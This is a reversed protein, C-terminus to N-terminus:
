HTMATQVVTYALFGKKTRIFREFIVLSKIGKLQRALSTTTAQLRKIELLIVGQFLSRRGFLEGNRNFLQAEMGDNQPRIPQNIFMSPYAFHFFPKDVPLQGNVVCRWVWIIAILKYAGL